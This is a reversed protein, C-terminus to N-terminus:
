TSRARQGVQLQHRGGPLGHRGHHHRTVAPSSPVADAPQQRDGVGTAGAAVANDYKAQFTCTGRDVYAWKGTVAAANTFPPAATRSPRVPPTPPTSPWSSTLPSGAHDHLRRGVAAPAVRGPVSRRHRGALQDDHDPGPPATPCLSGVARKVNIDGEGEDERGNILDLTEGWVDSYSENLAGSQCQYILGSTYETYAHGWEHSVVDDSSVGDCYNTTIGNWNANPCAITPDNNVDRMKAGDGDYSDRGFTNKFLWYAEGTRTSWRRSTRRQAHEPLTRARSGSQPTPTPPLLRTSSATSPTTPWRTATSRSAPTPTSSCSTASTPAQETVESRLRARQRRGRGQTAGMRYVILETNTRGIGTLDAKEGDENIAPRTAQRGRRGAARGAAASLRPTTSLDLGPAAYGNVATLDGDSDVNAKIM